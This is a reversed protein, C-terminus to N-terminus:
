RHRDCGKLGSKSWHKFWADIMEHRMTRPLRLPFYFFIARNRARQVLKNAPMKTVNKGGNDAHHNSMLYTQM